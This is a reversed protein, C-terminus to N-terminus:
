KVVKSDKPHTGKGLYSSYFILLCIIGCSISADAFNFIPPFFKVHIYDIVYGNNFVRDILNGIGGAIILAINKM